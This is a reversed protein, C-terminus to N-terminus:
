GSRPAPGCWRRRRARLRRRRRAHRVRRSRALVAARAPAPHVVRHRRFRRRRRGDGCRRRDRADLARFFAVPNVHEGAARAQADIEAERAADRARLQELWDPRTSAAASGSRWRAAADRRCRRDRRDDAPPEVARGQASRNAAILTRAAGCTAATTSGSTAPCAPWCCATPKACRAAGRTACRCRTSAARAPRAGHRLPLGPHRAADGSRRDGHAESRAARAGPQRDGAAAAARAALAAAARRRAVDRGRAARRGARRPPAPTAAARSCGRPTAISTGACRATPSRAHGQRRRGRVVAPDDGRRLAPRGPMRRVGPGARRERRRLVSRRGGAGLDAVRRVRAVLKVHPAVLSRQDIDQLAGRGQLATPAAGGLLVVPTQALQANKLATITNTVGPGATVAAVGPVGTLRAIADAAFM